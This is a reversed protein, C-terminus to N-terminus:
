PQTEAEKTHYVKFCSKCIAVKCYSCGRTIKAVKKLNAEEVGAIKQKARTYACMVCAHQKNHSFIIENHDEKKGQLREKPLTPNKHSTRRKKEMPSTRLMADSVTKRLQRSGFREADKRGMLASIFDSLYEKQEIKKKGKSCQHLFVIIYGNVRVIDMGHVHIAMWYHRHRLNARYYAIKQGTNDVGGMWCNYNDILGPIYVKAVSKDGFVLQLNAKNTPNDRPRRREKKVEEFGTHVTSVMTVINNDVWRFIRYKGDEGDLYHLSNFRDDEVKKFEAPPWGRRMRATGVVGIGMDRMASPVGPVTFYNDMGCVYNMNKQRRLVALCELVTDRIKEKVKRGSPKFIYCYGTLADCVAWFKFGKKIPKNRMMYTQISRGKFLRMMEDLSVISGPKVFHQSVTNIHDVWNEVKHYWVLDVVEGNESEEEEVEEGEDSAEEERIGDFERSARGVFDGEEEDSEENPIDEGEFFDEVDDEGDENKFSTHFYRWLFSFRDRGMGRCVPHNPWIGDAERFYDARAPLKVLGMYYICAHFHLLCARTVMSFDDKLMSKAYANTCTM